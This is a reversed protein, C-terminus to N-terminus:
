APRRGTAPTGLSGGRRRFAAVPLPIMLGVETGDFTVEVLPAVKRALRVPGENGSLASATFAVIGDEAARRALAEILFTGVGTGQWADEVVVAAEALHPRERERDFRAVGIVEDDVLAVMAERDHHDVEVLYRLIRGNPRAVATFFRRYVTEPSLREFMRRLREDDDPRIPRTTVTSRLDAGTGTEHEHNTQAPREVRIAGGVVNADTDM